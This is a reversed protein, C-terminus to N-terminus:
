NSKKNGSDKREIKKQLQAHETLLRDYETNVSQAQKKMVELDGSTIELERKTNDLEDKIRMMEAEADDLEEEGSDDDGGMMKRRNPRESILKNAAQTASLAQKMSSETTAELYAQYTILTILRRLVLWLFLAFGSIYFNRQARFLKMRLQNESGVGAITPDIGVTTQYKYSERVA